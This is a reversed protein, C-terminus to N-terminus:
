FSLRIRRAQSAILHRTTTKKTKNQKQIQKSGQLFREWCCCNDNNEEKMICNTLSIQWSYRAIFITHHEVRSSHQASGVGLGERVQPEADPTKRARVETHLIETVTGVSTHHWLFCHSMSSEYKGNGGGQICQDIHGKHQYSFLAEHATCATHLWSSM